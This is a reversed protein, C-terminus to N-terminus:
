EGSRVGLAEELRTNFESIVFAELSTQRSPMRIEISKMVMEGHRRHLVRFTMPVAPMRAKLRNYVLNGHKLDDIRVAVYAPTRSISVNKPKGEPLRAKKSMLSKLFGFM